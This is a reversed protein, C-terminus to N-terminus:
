ALCLHAALPWLKRRDTFATLFRTKDGTIVVTKGTLDAGRLAQIATTRSGLISKM